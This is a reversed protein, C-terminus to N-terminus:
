QYSAYVDAMAMASKGISRGTKEYFWRGNDRKLTCIENSTNDADVIETGLLVDNTDDDVLLMRCGGLKGLPLPESESSTGVILSIENVMVESLNISITEEPTSPDGDGGERCDGLHKLGPLSKNHYYLAGNLKYSDSADAGPIMKGAETLVAILEGDGENEWFMEVRLNKASLEVSTALTAKSFNLKATHVGAPIKTFDM